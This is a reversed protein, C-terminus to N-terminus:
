PVGRDTGFESRAYIQYNWGAASLLVGLNFLTRCAARTGVGGTPGDPVWAFVANRFVRLLAVVRRVLSTRWPHPASACDAALASQGQRFYRRYLYGRTMRAPPIWERTRAEQCWVLTAGGLHHRRFFERDSGGSLGFAEDFGGTTPPLLARSVLANATSGEDVRDGTAHTWDPVYLRGEPDFAPPRGGEFEPIAPGLVGDAQFRQRAAVLQVLWDPEAREDDDLFAVWGGRAAGVGTNRARSINQVPETVYRLPVAADESLRSVVERGEEGRSNDVVVVELRHGEPAQLALCSRLCTELLRPRRLTAVVVSVLDDPFEPPTKPAPVSSSEVSPPRPPAPHPM